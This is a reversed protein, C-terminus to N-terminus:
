INKLQLHTKLIEYDATIRKFREEAKKCKPHLDPHCTKALTKYRSKLNPQNLPPPLDLNSMARRVEKPLSPDTANEAGKYFNFPDHIHQFRFGGRGPVGFPWSPRHGSAEENNYRRIDASSMNKFYNWSANYEKVHDECFQHYEKLAATKPARFGGVRGCGEHDCQNHQDHSQQRFLPRVFQYNKKFM